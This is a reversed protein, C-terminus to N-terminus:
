SYRCECVPQKGDPLTGHRQVPRSLGAEATKHYDYISDSWVYNHDPICEGLETRREMWGNKEGLAWEPFMESRIRFFDPWEGFYAATKEYHGFESDLARGPYQNYKTAQKFECLYVETQFMTIDIGQKKGVWRLHGARDAVDAIDRDTNGKKLRPTNYLEALQERPSDGGIPRIDPLSLPIYEQRTFTELLKMLAYRGLGWVSRDLSEWLQVYRREPNTNKDYNDFFMPATHLVWNAYSNLHKTLKPISRVARRERRFSLGEWNDAVFRGVGARDALVRSWPYAEWLRYGSPVNYVSVYCGALWIGDVWNMDKSMHAIMDLHTDPGGTLRDLRVFDWFLRDLNEPNM